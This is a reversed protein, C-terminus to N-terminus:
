QTPGPRTPTSGMKENDVPGPPLVGNSPTAYISRSSIAKAMSFPDPRHRGRTVTVNNPMFFISAQFLLLTIASGPDLNNCRQEVGAHQQFIGSLRYGAGSKSRLLLTKM